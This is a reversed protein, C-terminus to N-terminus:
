ASTCTAARSSRSSNSKWDRSQPIPPDSRCASRRRVRARPADMMGPTLFKGTGDLRRADPATIPRDSVVAIRGDRVLVHRNGRPQAQEASLVTVNEILLAQGAGQAYTPLALNASALAILVFSRNM